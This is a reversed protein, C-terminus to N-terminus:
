TVLSSPEVSGESSSDDDEPEDPEEAKDRCDGRQGAGHSRDDRGPGRGEHTGDRSGREDTTTGDDADSETISTSGDSEQAAAWGAGGVLVAGSVVAAAIIRRPTWEM